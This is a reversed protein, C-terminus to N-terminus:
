YSVLKFDKSCRSMKSRRNLWSKKREANSVRCTTSSQLTSLLLLMGSIRQWVGANKFLLLIYYSMFIYVSKNLIRIRKLFNISKYLLSAIFQSFIVKQEDKM